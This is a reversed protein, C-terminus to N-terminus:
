CIVSRYDQREHPSCDGGFFSDIFMDYDRRDLVGDGNVDALHQLAPSGQSWSQVFFAMDASDVRNDRNVDAPCYYDLKSLDELGVHPLAASVDARFSAYQEGTTLVPLIIAAPRRFEIATSATQLEATPPHRRVPVNSTFGEAPKEAQQKAPRQWVAPLAFAALAVMLAALVRNM